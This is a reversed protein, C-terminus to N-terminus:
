SLGLLSLVKRVCGVVQRFPDDIFKVDMERARAKYALALERMHEPPFDLKREIGYRAKFETMIDDFFDRQIGSAMAWSQLYRRYSDWAAWEFGPKRSLTETLRDNLGVDIFTSM